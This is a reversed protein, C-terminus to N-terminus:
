SRLRGTEKLPGSLTFIGQLTIELMDFTDTEVGFFFSHGRFLPWKFHRALLRGVVIKESVVNALYKRYSTVM